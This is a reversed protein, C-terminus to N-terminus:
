RVAPVVYSSAVASSGPEAIEPNRAGALLAVAFVEQVLDEFRLFGVVAGSRLDVAWVGSAREDLRRTIPLDGFTSSERIQSLGVFAIPGALALGRTFGPLRAVVEVAGTTLDVTALEGRGSELVYLRGDHWRPSHPMSLGACVIEGSTVDLLMGGSAKGERWGGPEDSRGLATVYAVRDDRVALGNLHCHDGPAFTTVFSPRFRPVFSHDADLTALCSFATAVIWLEGGAFAMEHIAVDGTVHRSRPLYCADHTGAPEVKPAVAPVDRFDWVETRTGLAFRGPATALGMPKDFARFHTNLGDPRPRACILRGSQYTSALLSAGLEDLLRPFGATFASGFAVLGDAPDGAPQADAVDTGAILDDLQQAVQEAARTDAAAPDARRRQEVPSLLAQDYTIDLFACLRRLEGRPDALLREYGVVCWREPGLAQLAGLLRATEQRWRAPPVGQRLCAELDRRVLVFRAGPREAALASIQGAAGPEALVPGADVARGLAAAVLAADAGPPGVVVIPREVPADM